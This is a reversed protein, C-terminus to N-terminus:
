DLQRATRDRLRVLSLFSRGGRGVTTRFHFLSPRALSLPLKRFRFQDILLRSIRRDVSFEAAGGVSCATARETEIPTGVSARRDPSNCNGILRCLVRGGRRFGNAAPALCIRRALFKRDPGGLIGQNRALQLDSAVVM